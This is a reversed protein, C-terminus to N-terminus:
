FLEWTMVRFFIKQLLVTNSQATKHVILINYLRTSAFFSFGRNFLCAFLGTKFTKSRTNKLKTCDRWFQVLVHIVSSSISAGLSANSRDSNMVNSLTQILGWYQISCIISDLSPFSYSMGWRLFLLPLKLLCWHNDTMGHGFPANFVAGSTRVTCLIDNCQKM